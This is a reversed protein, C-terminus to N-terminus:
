ALVVLTCSPLPMKPTETLRCIMVAHAGADCPLGTARVSPVANGWAVLMSCSLVERKCWMSARRRRCSWQRREGYLVQRAASKMLKGSALM